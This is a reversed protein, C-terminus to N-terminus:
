GEAMHQRRATRAHHSRQPQTARVYPMPVSGSRSNPVSACFFLAQLVKAASTAAITRLSGCAPDSASRCLSGVKGFVAGVVDSVSLLHPDGIAALGVEESHKCFDAAFNEAKRTSRAKGPRELRRRLFLLHPDLAAGVGIKKSLTGTGTSFRRPSAPRSMMAKLMRFMRDVPELCWLRKRSRRISSCGASKWRRRPSVSGPVPCRNRVEAHDPLFERFHRNPDIAVSDVSM